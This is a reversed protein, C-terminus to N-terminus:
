ISPPYSMTERVLEQMLISKKTRSFIVESNFLEPAFTQMHDSFIAAFAFDIDADTKNLFHTLYLGLFTKGIGQAQAAFSLFLPKATDKSWNNASIKM